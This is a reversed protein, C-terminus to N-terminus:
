LQYAWESEPGINELYDFSEIVDEGAIAALNIYVESIKPAEYIQAAQPYFSEASIHLLLEALDEDSDGRPSKSFLILRQCIQQELSWANTPSNNM